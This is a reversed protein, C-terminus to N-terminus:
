QLASLKQQWREMYKIESSPQNDAVHVPYSKLIQPKFTCESEEAEKALADARERLRALKEEKLRALEYLSVQRKNSTAPRSTLEPRFPCDNAQAESKEQRKQALKDKLNRYKGETRQIFENLEKSSLKKVPKDEGQEPTLDRKNHYPQRKPSSALRISKRDIRPSFTCEEQHLRDVTAQRKQLLLLGREYIDAVKSPSEFRTPKPTKTRPKPEQERLPSPSAVRIKPKPPKSPSPTETIVAPSGPLLGMDILSQVTSKSAM